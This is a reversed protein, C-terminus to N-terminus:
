KRHRQKNYVDNIRELDDVDNLGLDNRIVTIRPFRLAFGSNYTPSKQIEEYNVTVIIKPKVEINKGHDKIIIKKLEKTLDSFKLGENKEKIGSGVRGIELFDDGRRCSIIFSSLWNSRKGEGWTAGTIVLDFPEMIPKLKVWGNVYRGPKFTGKMNKLILGETGRQLAERYFKDIEKKDDSILKRTLIIKGNEQKVIKELLKRREKLENSMVNKGNYYMVDFVNIEVPYEKAMKEIDYKRKIRQSINQFALYKDNKHGAVESDLIFNKGKVHKEVVKVVDPFQKTVNEMRRTFLKIEKGDFHIQMRFGDLKYEAQAPEGVAKLAEEISDVKIALQLQIPRGPKLSGSLKNQIALEATEGYDTTLNYVNEVEKVDKDFARAISDRVVGSAVGIRLDKVITNIIYRAETPRANNLLEVVLSVKKNVTGSGEFSSLKRLNEFVKELTLKKSALTFQKKNSLVEEAVKGLDGHKKWLKEVEVMDSGSSQSIIKILLRESVGLKDEEWSAYIKGQLLYIVKRIDEKPVKKIFESIIETKELRKTTKELESYVNALDSYYM